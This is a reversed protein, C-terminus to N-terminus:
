RGDRLAPNYPKSNAGAVARAKAPDFFRTEEVCHQLDEAIDRDFSQINFSLLYSDVVTMYIAAWATGERKKQRSIGKSFEKGHIITIPASRMLEGAFKSDLQQAAIYLVSRGTEQALGFLTLERVLTGSSSVRAIHFRSDRPLPLSFGFFANTYKEPSLFGSEPAAASTDKACVVRSSILFLAVFFSLKMKIKDNSQEVESFLTLARQPAILIQQYNWRSYM